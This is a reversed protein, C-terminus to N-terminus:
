NRVRAGRFNTGCTTDTLLVPKTDWVSDCCYVSSFLFSQVNKFDGAEALRGSVTQRPKIKTFIPLFDRLRTRVKFHLESNISYGLGYFLM